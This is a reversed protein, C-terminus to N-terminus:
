REGLIGGKTQGLHYSGAGTIGVWDARILVWGYSQLTKLTTEDEIDAVRVPGDKLRALVASQEPTPKIPASAM